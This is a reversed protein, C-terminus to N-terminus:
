SFRGPSSVSVAAGVGNEATWRYAVDRDDCTAVTRADDALDLIAVARAPGGDDYLVTYGAVTASGTGEPAVRRVATRRVVEDSVDVWRFGDAAPTTSWLAAAPKTLMGSVCTVFGTRRRHDRLRRAMTATAQLVYNNLPGGAFTMGGTVTLERDATLGLEAAQVQVAAPFCSYLDVEDVDDISIGAVALVREAVVAFGPWRHLEARASLPVMHNSEGAALPFVWHNKPVSAREAAAASMLLLAAAQDVNWQSCLMKTYPFAVMRNGAGPTVIDAADPDRRDWAEPNSAAVTAFSSWLAGLHDRHGAISRGADHALASEMVAYQRAPVALEREIEVRTIIEGDPRLTEDPETEETEEVPTAPASRARYKDEAGCVVVVEIDGSAIAACAGTILTQQLVGVEGIVTHARTAGVRRRVASAPNPHRWTGRPIAILQIDGLLGRDGCDDAAAEVAAVMLDVAGLSTSDDPRQDDPRQDDPRQTISGVGVLVPMKADVPIM